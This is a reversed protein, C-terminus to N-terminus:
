ITQINLFMQSALYGFYLGILCLVISMIKVLRSLFMINIAKRFRTILVTLIYFWSISGVSIFFAYFLSILLHFYSPFNSNENHTNKVGQDTASNIFLSDNLSSEFNSIEKVSQDIFIDLGGTNFGLSSVFSIVLFTSTLWGILLMPNCFNILSGTYFGGKERRRIKESLQSKDEFHEFDIKTTFIKYGLYLLIISGFSLLYPIAPKYFSYLKTLGYVAVFVYTFTALSAGINVLICYRFRGKLANTTILISIPGAIPMSFIVGALLGVISITIISETM